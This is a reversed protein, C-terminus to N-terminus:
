KYVKYVLDLKEIMGILPKPSCNLCPQWYLKNFISAYLQCVMLVQEHSIKLTRIKKFKGWAKYEKETLCRARFRFPLLENLKKETEKCNCDEGDKWIIKKIVNTLPKVIPSELVEKLKTGAGGKKITVKKSM